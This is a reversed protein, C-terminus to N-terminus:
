QYYVSHIIDDQNAKDCPIVLMTTAILMIVLPNHLLSTDDVLAVYILSDIISISSSHLIPFMLSGM